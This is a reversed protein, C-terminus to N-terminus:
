GRGVNIERGILYEIEEVPKDWIKSLKKIDIDTRIGIQCDSFHSLSRNYFNGGEFCLARFSPLEVVFKGNDIELIKLKNNKSM